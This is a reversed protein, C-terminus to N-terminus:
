CTMVGSCAALTVKSGKSTVLTQGLPSHWISYFNLLVSIRSLRTGSALLRHVRTSGCGQLSGGHHRALRTRVQSAQVRSQAKVQCAGSSAHKRTPISIKRLTASVPKYSGHRATCGDQCHWCEGLSHKGQLARRRQSTYIGTFQGQLDCTILQGFQSSETFDEGLSNKDTM